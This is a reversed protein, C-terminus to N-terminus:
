NDPTFNSLSGRRIRLITIPLHGITKLVNLAMHGLPSYEFLTGRGSADECDGLEISTVLWRIGKM